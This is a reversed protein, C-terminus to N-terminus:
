NCFMMKLNRNFSREYELLSSNSCAILHGGDNFLYYILCGLSFLDNVYDVNHKLLLNPSSFQFDISLFAPLRSDLPDIYREAIGNELNEIFQLGSMKWDFNETIFISSPNINLNVTHVSQHLFKLANAIQLLGKTIIIEDLQSKNLTQLDNVVYETVFLIRSKHDELPEIVTLFNPHKFKALNSIYNKVAEFIDSQVMQKNSRNMLGNNMLRTEWEKKNFQWVSCKKKTTKHKAPYITWCGNSVFLPNSSISYNGEIGTTKFVKFM